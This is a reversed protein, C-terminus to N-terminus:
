DGLKRDFLFRRDPLFVAGLPISKRRKRRETLNKCCCELIDFGLGIKQLSSFQFIIQEHSVTVNNYALLFECFSLKKTNIV